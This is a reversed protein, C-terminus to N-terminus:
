LFDVPINAFKELPFSEETNMQLDGRGRGLVNPHRM